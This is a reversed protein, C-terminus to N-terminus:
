FKNEKEIDLIFLDQIGGKRKRKNCIQITSQVENVETIKKKYDWYKVDDWVCLISLGTKLNLKFYTHDQSLGWCSAMSYFAAHREMTSSLVM